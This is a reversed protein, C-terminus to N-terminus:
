GAALAVSLLSDIDEVGQMQQEYAADLMKKFVPGPKVGANQLHRGMLIPKIPEPGIDDFHDWCAKSTEHEFDPSGIRARGDPDGCSDCKCMWGLVDLRVRNHLRKWGAKRADGQWLNFPQLTLKFAM